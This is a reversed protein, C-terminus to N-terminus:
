TGLPIETLERTAGPVSTVGAKRQRVARGANVQLWACARWFCTNQLGARMGTAARVSTQNGMAGQGAFLLLRGEAVGPLRSAGGQSEPRSLIIKPCCEGFQKM